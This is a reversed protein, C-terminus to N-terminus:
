VALTHNRDHLRLRGFVFAGNVILPRNVTESPPGLRHIRQPEFDHEAREGAFVAGLELKLFFAVVGGWGLVLSVGLEDLGVLM